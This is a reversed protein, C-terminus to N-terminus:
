YNIISLQQTQQIGFGGKHLPLHRTFRPPPITCIFRGNECRSEAFESNGAAVIGWDKQKAFLWGGKCLPAKTKNM